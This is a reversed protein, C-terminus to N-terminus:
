KWHKTWFTLIKATEHEEAIDKWCMQCQLQLQKEYGRKLWFADNSSYDTPRLRHNIPREVACFCTYDISNDQLAYREREDFFRHGWGQGRYKPLLLSEGFYFGASLPWHQTVFPEIIEQSEDALPMATTAGVMKDADYLAFVMAKPHNVYRQLYQYEYDVRGDYLYPFDCFITIRLFALDPLIQEIEAGQILIEKLMNWKISCGFCDM